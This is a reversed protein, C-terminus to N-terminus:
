RAAAGPGADSLPWQSGRATVSSSRSRSSRPRAAARRAAGRAAATVLDVEPASPKAARISGYRELTAARRRRRARPRRDAVREVAGLRRRAARRGPRAPRSGAACSTSARRRVALRAHASRRPRRRRRAARGRRRRRSPRRAHPEALLGLREHVDVHASSADLRRRGARAPAPRGAPAARAAPPSAPERQAREGREVRRRRRVLREGDLARRSPSSSEDDLAARRAPLARGRREGAAVVRMSTRVRTLPRPASVSTRRSPPRESTAPPWRPKRGLPMANRVSNEGFGTSGPVGSGSRRALRATSRRREAVALGPRPRQSKM